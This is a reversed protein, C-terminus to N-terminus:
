ALPRRALELDMAYHVTLTGGHREIAARIGDFLGQRDAPGLRMHDPYTRLLAM